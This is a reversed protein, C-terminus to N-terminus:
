KSPGIFNNKSIYKSLNKSVEFNSNEYTDIRYYEVLANHSSVDFKNLDL